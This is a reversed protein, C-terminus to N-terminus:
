VGNRVVIASWDDYTGGYDNALDEFASRFRRLADLRPIMRYVCTISWTGGLAKPGQWSGPCIRKGKSFAQKASSETEFSLDFTLQHVAFLDSGSQELLKLGRVDADWEAPVAAAFVAAILAVLSRRIM